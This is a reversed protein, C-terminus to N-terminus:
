ENLNDATPAPLNSPHATIRVAAAVPNAWAEGTFIYRLALAPTLGSWTLPWSMAYDFDFRQLESSGSSVGGKSRDNASPTEVTVAAIAAEKVPRLGRLYWRLAPADVDFYVKADEPTIGAMARRCYIRTQLTTAMADWYLNAHRNWAAESADPAYCVFNGLIQAYLTLAALACAIIRVAPWANTHHLWEFGLAGLVALPLLILPLNTADPSLVTLTLAASFLTWLMIWVTIMSKVRASVVAVIGMIAAGIILFEDLVLPALCYQLAVRLGTGGMEGQSAPNGSAIDPPASTFFQSAISVCVAAIVVILLLGRYRKLWVGINLLPHERTVLCYFGIMSLALVFSVETVRGDPPTVSLLGIAIGFWAARTTSPHEILGCFGYLSVLAMLAAPIEPSNSRAYYTFGPSLTLFIALALAGARGIYRRLGFATVILILGCLAPVVRVSWDSPGGLASLAATIISVWGPQPTVNTSGGYDSLIALARTAESADLPRASLLAFRSFAAYSVM